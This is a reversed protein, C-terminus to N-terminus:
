RDLATDFFEVLRPRYVSGYTTLAELHKGGEVIWLEKPERARDYLRHAHYLPIGPDDTGHIILLPTPAIKDVFKDPSYRNNTVLVSLPWKLLTGGRMEAIKDRVVRRYSSLASEVAVAKFASSGFSAVADIAIAGGLSQGLVVLRRSDVDGRARVYAVAALADEHVGRPTPTGASRGFGRYDFLFVNYGCAPLWSVYKLHGSMSDAKGHFHLVTARATGVAPLWWGTLATGDASAFSVDQFELGQDSPRQGLDRSADYYHNSACGWCWCLVFLLLGRGVLRRDAQQFAGSLGGQM